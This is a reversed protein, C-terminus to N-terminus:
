KLSPHPHPQRTRHSRHKRTPLPHNRRTRQQHHSKKIIAAEDPNNMDPWHGRACRFVLHAMISYEKLYEPSYTAITNNKSDWLWLNDEIYENNLHTHGPTYKYENISSM